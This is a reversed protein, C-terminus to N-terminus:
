VTEKYLTTQRKWKHDNTHKLKRVKYICSIAFEKSASIIYYTADVTLHSIQVTVRRKLLKRSFGHVDM